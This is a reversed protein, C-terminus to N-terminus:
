YKSLSDVNIGDMPLIINLNQYVENSTPTLSTNSREGVKVQSTTIMNRASPERIYDWIESRKFSSTEASAAERSLKDDLVATHFNTSPDSIHKQLIKSPSLDTAM